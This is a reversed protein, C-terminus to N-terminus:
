SCETANNRRGFRAHSDDVYQHFTKSAIAFALALEIANKEFNQLYSESLLIM